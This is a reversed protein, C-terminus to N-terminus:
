HRGSPASPILGAPRNGGHATPLCERRRTRQPLRFPCAPLRHEIGIAQLAEAYPQWLSRLSERARQASQPESKLPRIPQGGLWAHVAQWVVASVRRNRPGRLQSINPMNADDQRPALEVDAIRRGNKRVSFVRVSGLALHRAYQDLCNEMAASEAIFDDVTRLAVIDFGLACGDSLWTNEIDGGLAAVLDIRKRWITV